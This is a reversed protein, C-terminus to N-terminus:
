DLLSPPIQKDEDRRDEILDLIDTEEDRESM